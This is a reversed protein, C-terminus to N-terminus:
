TGQLFFPLDWENLRPSFAAPNLMAAIPDVDALRGEVLTFGTLTNMWADAIVVFVGSAAGSVAVLVDSRHEAM